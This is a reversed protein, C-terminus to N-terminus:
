RPAAREKYLQPAPKIKESMDPDAPSPQARTPPHLLTREGREKIPCRTYERFVCQTIASNNHPWADYFMLFPVVGNCQLVVRLICRALLMCSTRQANYTIRQANHTTSRSCQWQVPGAGSRGATCRPLLGRGGPKHNTSPYSFTSRGGGRAGGFASIRLAGVGGCVYQASSSFPSPSSSMSMSM